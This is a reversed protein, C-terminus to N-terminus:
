SLVSPASAASPCAIASVYWIGIGGDIEFWRGNPSATLSVDIIECDFGLPRLRECLIEMCGADLPTVSPRSILQEALRLTVTM